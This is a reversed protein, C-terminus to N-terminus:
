KPVRSSIGNNAVWFIKDAGNIDGDLNVDAPHYILFNGNFSGWFAKDAGNIDYGQVDGIQECDGAYMAWKGNPLQKQGAGTGNATYGEANRFDHTLTRDIIPIPQATMVAIHNRHQITVYVPSIAGTFRIDGDPFYLSGDKRLIAAAQAIQTNRTIDTHFSVLVWDVTNTPYDTITWDLGEQGSYNWPAESYPQKGEPLLSLGQLSTNMIDNTPNYAGELLVHLDPLFYGFNTTCEILDNNEDYVPQYQGDVDISFIESEGAHDSVTVQYVGATLNDIRETTEGTSWLYSYPATGGRVTAKASGYVLCQTHFVSVSVLLENSTETGRPYIDNISTGLINELTGDSEIKNGGKIKMEFPPDDNTPINETIIIFSVIPGDCLIDQGDVRTVAGYFKNEAEDFLGFAKPQQLSSASVRLEVSSVNLSDFALEFAFGHAWVPNGDIDEVYLDYVPSGGDEAIREVRYSFDNSVSQPAGFSHINDFNLYIVDLDTSDVIGDGNGDQNMGNIGDVNQVWVTAPQAFWDTTPTGQAWVITSTGQRFWNRKPGTFDYALGWTLVDEKSVIGDSNYDGPWVSECADATSDTCFDEWSIDFNNGDTIYTNKNFTPNIRSCLVSLYESFCGSLQNGFLWMRDLNNLNEFTYPINGSLQNNSLYLNTLVSFTGLELPITGTLSNDSLDLTSLKTLQGLGTPINGDLSNGSLNLTTLKDLNSLNSPINGNFENYLLDLTVLRNMNGISAPINGSLLNDSMDLNLLDLDGIEQPLTGILDNNSLDLGTVCGVINTTVGYWSEMPENLNWRNLWSAGNTANYLAVLSLSDSQRCAVTSCAGAGTNCFDSWTADFTNGVDISSSVYLQNCLNILEPPFCGTMQNNSINIYRLKSLEGITHPISGILQNYSLDLHSLYQFKEIKSPIYGTMQNGKLSLYSLSYLKSLPRVLYYTGYSMSNVKNYSLDLHQLTTLYEIGEPIESFDNWSLNLYTLNRLNNLESPVDSLGCGVLSLSKLNNLNGITIPLSDLHGPVVYNNIELNQLSTLNGIEPPLGNLQINQNLKLYTLNILNGIEPPLNSIRNFQLNLRKLNILNGIESPLEGLNNNQLDLNTLNVLNGIEPPLSNLYSYQLKLVKLNVLNGIEPPVIGISIDLIDVCGENSLDVGEWTNVPQNLIWPLDPNVEYIAVLALSDNERCLVPCEEEPPIQPIPVSTYYTLANYLNLQGDSVTKDNLAPSKAASNIIATKIEAHDREHQLSWLLACAGAVHPTAMSTGDDYGYNNVPLCSYISDGPAAIHVMTPGFNSFNALEGDIDTAAVAIINNSNYSAPFFKYSDNNSGYNGAGTVFIHGATAADQIAEELLANSHGGGWSNNSIKAGADIAYNLAAIIASVPALDGADDFIKLPIIQINPVVGIIGINNNGTAGIIGAVHTGHGTDDTDEVDNNNDEFDWGVFDDVLGNGDNDVGDLDDKDFRWIQGVKEIVKGDGDADECLNQWINGVLDEHKWDVGTDLVAVKIYPSNDIIDWGTPANITDMNWQLGYDRDNPIDNQVGEAAKESNSIDTRYYYHDPVIHEIDPHNRYQETLQKIDVKGNTENIQWVEIGNKLLRQKTVGMQIKLANKQAITKDQKMKVLVRGPVYEPYNQAYTFVCMLCCLWLALTKCIASTNM